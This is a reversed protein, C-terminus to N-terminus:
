VIMIRELGFARRAHHAAIVTNNFICFGMGRDPTAHHGPPRVICFANRLGGDMVMDVANLVLSPTPKFVELDIAVDGHFALRDAHPTVTLAYHHPVATRPLQTPLSADITDAQTQALLGSPTAALVAASALLIAFSKM